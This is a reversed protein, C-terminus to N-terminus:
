QTVSNLTSNLSGIAAAGHAGRLWSFAAVTTGTALAEPYVVKIQDIVKEAVGLTVAYVLYHEWLILAPVEAIDLNSFDTLFRRFAKWKAFQEAGERSRRRIFAGVLVVGFGLVVLTVGLVLGLVQGAALGGFGVLLYLTGLVGLILQGTKADDDFFGQERALQGLKGEFSSYFSRFTSANAKIFATMGAFSVEPFGGSVERFIFEMLRGEHPALGTWDKEQDLEFIYDKVGAGKGLLNALFGGRDELEVERISLYGRRALDLITAVIDEAKTVDFRWLRGLEAPSYGAPLERYYDGEFSPRFERGYRSQVWYALAATAVALLVAGLWTLRAVLRARNAAEAWQAEEAMIGELREVGTLNGSGPVLGPSFLVRAEVYTGPSVSPVGLRVGDGVIAANGTLPGHAWVKIDEEGAGAPLMISVTVNENATEWQDGIFQWYLEAVDNHVIVANDVIYSIIFTKEEDYARYSWKIRVTSGDRAVAYSGPSQTVGYFNAQNYAGQKSDAVSVGHVEPPEPASVGADVTESIWQEMWSFSGSFSITREEVVAMSGDPRVEASIRVQTIDWDKALAPGAVSASVLVTLIVALTATFLMRQVVRSGQSREIM